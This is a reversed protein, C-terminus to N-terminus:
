SNQVKCVFEEFKGNPPLLWEKDYRTIKYTFHDGLERKAINVLDVGQKLTIPGDTVIKYEINELDHQIVQYKRIKFDLQDFAYMGIMPWYRSGDPQLILNRERGMIKKITQLGRGCSCSPGREAYDGIVYRILPSAYNHLDTVVVKGITGEPVPSGNDDLIEVILNQDLTHYLGSEPCQNAISGLEQSSYCDEIVLGFFEKVRNRLNDSVTEGITKIHKINFDPNDDRWIDLLGILNNPYISLIDPKFKRILKDQERIDTQNNLALAPGTEFMLNYPPGWNPLETNKFQGARISVMRLKFDRKHWLIEQLNFAHFFGSVKDTAKIVVPEGTSGSSKVTGIKGHHEPIEKAFFSDGASQVDQRSIFPLASINDISIDKSQLKLRRISNQYWQSHKVHWGVLSQLKANQIDKIKKGTYWQMHNITETLTKLAEIKSNM